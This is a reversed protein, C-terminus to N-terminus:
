NVRQAIPQSTATQEAHSIEHGIEIEAECIQLKRMADQIDNRSVIAYRKPLRNLRNPIFQNATLPLRPLRLVHPLWNPGSQPRLIPPKFHSTLGPEHSYSRDAAAM